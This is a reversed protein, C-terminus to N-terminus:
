KDGLCVVVCPRRLEDGAVNCTAVYLRGNHALPTGYVMGPAAVAPDTGLDLTWRKKGDAMQIAHVVGAIDAAYVLEGAIAAGAFLPAGATYGWLLKGQNAADYAQVRGDTATSIVTSGQVALPSVVGGLLVKSWRVKGDDLGLAVIEGRGKKTQHPDFRINSTGVVVM